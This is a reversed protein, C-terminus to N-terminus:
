LFGRIKDLAERIDNSRTCGEIEDLLGRITELDERQIEKSCGGYLLRAGVSIIVQEDPITCRFTHSKQPYLTMHQLPQNATAHSVVFTVPKNGDNEIRM